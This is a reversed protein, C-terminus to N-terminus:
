EEAEAPAAQGNSEARATRHVGRAALVKQMLEDRLKPNEKLFARAKERGQGLKVDGYALWTGSRDIVRDEVALYAALQDDPDTTEAAAQMLDVFEPDTWHGYNSAADPLLLLGYLAYPSPYDTIWNITFVQPPREPLLTLYDGFDM